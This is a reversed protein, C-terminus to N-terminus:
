AAPLFVNVTTGRGPASDIAVHGGSQQVIGHVISLGLGVGRGTDKTTFFPEAARRATEASMGAGTDAVSLRVYRGPELGPRDALDGPGLEVDAVGITLEGGEAMADRANIALNMLAHEIQRPDVFAFSPGDRERIVVDITSGLTRQLMSRMGDVLTQLEVRAPSLVQSRSFALLQSTLEAGREAAEQITQVAPRAPNDHAIDDLAAEANGVVVMLLNNFDHAIGSALHGISEMKQSQRLANEMTRRETVDQCVLMVSREEASDRAVDAVLIRKPGAGNSLVLELRAGSGDARCREIADILAGAAGRDDILRLLDSLRPSGGGLLGQAGSSLQSLSGDRALRTSWIGAIEQARNLVANRRRLEDEATRRAVLERDVVITAVIIVLVILALILISARAERRWGRLIDDESATLAVTLAGREALRFSTLGQSARDVDGTFYGARERAMARRLPATDPLALGMDPPPSPQRVLVLGTAHVVWLSGGVGVDITAYFRRLAEPDVSAVVAGAFSGDPRTLRRGVPFVVRGTALGRFPVDSVTDPSTAESLHRFIHLDRRSQGIAQPITSHRVIGQDDVVTIAHIGSASARAAALVQRWEPSSGEPGGMRASLGAIQSLTADVEAIARQLHTALVLTLTTGRSRAIDFADSRARALNTAQWASLTAVFTVALVVM